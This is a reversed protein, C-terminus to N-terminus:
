TTDHGEEKGTELVRCVRDCIESVQNEIIEEDVHSLMESLFSLEAAYKRGDKLKGIVQVMLYDAAERRCEFRVSLGPNESVYKMFDVITTLEEPDPFVM